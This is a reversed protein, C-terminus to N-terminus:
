NTKHPMVVLSRAVVPKWILYINEKNIIIIGRSSLLPTKNCTMPCLTQVGLM